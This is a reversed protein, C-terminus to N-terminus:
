LRRAMWVVRGIINVEDALREYTQYQPNVSTIVVMPPDSNPVHEVRKAVVGMGDWIVFIGPPVPVRQSTDVLIRDGSAILPEMSDGEITIMRLDDSRTRFEHRVVPEPFLWFATAEEPGDHFAGPGASARVDLEAIRAFGEGSRRRRPAAPQDPEEEGKPAPPRGSERPRLEEEDVGLHAALAERADEPLVKPTGRTVYQHLYAANRGIALSANKLDTGSDQIMKLVKLRIPDLEVM